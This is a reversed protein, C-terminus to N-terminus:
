KGIFTLALRSWLELNEGELEERTRWTFESLEPGPLVGFPSQLEVLFVLGLHVCGVPTKEENIVGLFTMSKIPPLVIFEEKLERAFGRSIIKGPDEFVGEGDHKGIHGGIGCSILDHLRTESGMRRYSALTRGEEERVILYPIIQKYRSDNEVSSRPLFVYGAKKIAAECADQGVVVASMTGLWSPPLGERPVCM